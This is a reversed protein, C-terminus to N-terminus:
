GVISRSDVYGNRAERLVLEFAPRASPRSRVFRAPVAFGLQPSAKWRM